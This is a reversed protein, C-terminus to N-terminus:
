GDARGEGDIIALAAALRDLDEGSGAAIGGVECPDRKAVVGRAAEVLTLLTECVRRMGKVNVFLEAWESDPFEDTADLFERAVEMM